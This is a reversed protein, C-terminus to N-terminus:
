PLPKGELKGKPVYPSIVVTVPTGKAHLPGVPIVIRDTKALKRDGQAANATSRVKEGPAPVHPVLVIMQNAQTLKRSLVTPGSGSEGKHDAGEYQVWLRDPTGHVILWTAGSVTYPPKVVPIHGVVEDALRKGGQSVQVRHIPTSFGLHLKPSPDYFSKGSVSLPPTPPAKPTHKPGVAVAVLLVCFALGLVLGAIRRIM